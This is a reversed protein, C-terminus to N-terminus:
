CLQRNGQSCSQNPICLFKNLNCGSCYYCCGNNPCAQQGNYCKYEAVVCSACCDATMEQTGPVASRLIVGGGTDAHAGGPKVLTAFGAGAMTLLGAKGTNRLAARRTTPGTGFDGSFNFM